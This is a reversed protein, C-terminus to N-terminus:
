KEINLSTSNLNVQQLHCGVKESRNNLSEKVALALEYEDEFMRGSIEHAKIQNWEGEILNLEPSYTPLFFLYLGKDQWEKEKAKVQHSKHVSYNHAIRKAAFLYGSCSKGWLPNATSSKTPHLHLDEEDSESTVGLRGM